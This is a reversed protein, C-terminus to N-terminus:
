FKKQASKGLRERETCNNLLKCFKEALLNANNVDLLTGNKGKELVDMM